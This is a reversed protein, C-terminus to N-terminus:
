RTRPPPAPPVTIQRYVSYTAIQPRGSSPDVYAFILYRLGTTFRLMTESATQWEEDQQFQFVVPAMNFADRETPRGFGHYSGPHLMIKNEGLVFRIDKNHFNAVFAGGDPFNKASDEIVFVRWPLAGPASGGAAVFVLIVNKLNAPITATAAPKRDASNYFAIINSKAFCDTPDSPGSTPLPCPIDVAKDSVAFLAPPTQGTVDLFLFRCSIKTVEEAFGAASVLLWLCLSWARM